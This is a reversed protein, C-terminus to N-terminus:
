EVENLKENLVQKTCSTIRLDSINLIFIEIYCQNIHKLYGRDSRDCDRDSNIRGDMSLFTHRSKVDRWVGINFNLAGAPCLYQGM